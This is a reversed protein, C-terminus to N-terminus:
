GIGTKGWILQIKIPMNNAYEAIMREFAHTADPLLSPSVRQFSVHSNVSGFLEQCQM